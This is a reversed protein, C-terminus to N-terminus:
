KKRLVDLTTEDIAVPKTGQFQKLFEERKQGLLENKLQALINAKVEEYPQTAADRHALLKIIHYGFRTRVPESYEGPKLAYAAAEFQPVLRGKNQWGPLEGGRTASGTDASYEKALAAFDAGERLKALVGDAKAKVVTATMKEDADDVRFLIHAARIGEPQVFSAKGAEYRERALPELDPLTKTAKDLEQEVYAKVLIERVARDIQARIPESDKLGAKVAAAEMRRDLLMNTVFREMQAKSMVGRVNPPAAELEKRIEEISISGAGDSIDAANALTLGALSLVCGLGITRLSKSLKKPM